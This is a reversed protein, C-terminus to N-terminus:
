TEDEHYRVAARYRIDSGFWAIEPSILQARFGDGEVARRPGGGIVPALYMVVEDVLRRSFAEGLLRGGCELLVSCVGEKGLAAFVPELHEVHFVRTREKHDDTFLLADGPLDGSRTVIVRLPQSRGLAHSGRLTLRPNDKRVTEGGVLIADMEGRLRQVDERAEEGTIWPPQGPLPTIRGDLTMGSKAVVFPNGTLIHKRFYRILADCPEELVGAEVVLGARRLVELGGGAHRPNPDTSGVVIRSLGAGILADVCPPTRGTTSCPELTVYMTAGAPNMGASMADRLAQVEAHPGGAIEHHGRGLVNGDRVLVAGVPPNPSTKGLGKRAEELALRMWAEDASDGQKPAMGFHLGGSLVRMLRDVTKEPPM